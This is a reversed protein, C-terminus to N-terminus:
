SAEDTRRRDLAVACILVLGSATGFWFSNVGILLLLNALVALFLVGIVTRTVGGRGGAFSTGGVLVGGIAVLEVGIGATPQASGIQAVTM